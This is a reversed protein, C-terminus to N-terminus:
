RRESRSIEVGGSVQESQKGKDTHRADRMRGIHVCKKIIKEERIMVIEGARGVRKRVDTCSSCREDDRMSRNWM